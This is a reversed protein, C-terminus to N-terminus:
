APTPPTMLEREDVDMVTVPALETGVTRARLEVVAIRSPVVVTPADASAMPSVTYTSTEGVVALVAELITMSSERTSPFTVDTPAFEMTM